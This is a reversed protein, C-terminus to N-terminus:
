KCVMEELVDFYTEFTKKCCMPNEIVVGPTVLGPITFSMAVRHDEFTLIRCGHPEGPWIVVEGEKQEKVRIGLARLNVLMAQIRDCEQYRIHGIGRMTVPADAFCAIAALTLAQDSFASFDFSGGQLRGGPPPEMLIGGDTERSICGMQELVHLFRIDGQLCDWHVHRVRAPVGLVPCMAYFYAAASVDPEIRYDAAYYKADGPIRFTDTGERIVEVGFQGMMALTMDVYAMGHTGQVHIIFDETSLVSSILLASLFQSSKDVDITIEQKKIGSGGIVYPFHYREEEYEIQAGLEELAMLLEQMPRKKMQGSADMRYRGESLGLCATLFRAATGASGVDVTAAAKPIKGGLGTIEVRKKGEDVEVSFGLSSLAQLFHRSDDSFLVGSLVSRGECLAAILLARNTISKSGPVMVEVPERKAQKVMYAEEM